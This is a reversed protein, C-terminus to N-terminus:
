RIKRRVRQRSFFTVSGVVWLLWANPEPVSSARKYVLNDVQYAPTLYPDGNQDLPAFSLLTVTRFEFGPDASLGLFFSGGAPDLGDLNGVFSGAGSGDDVRLQYLNGPVAEFAPAYYFDAGFARLLPASALTVADGGVFVDFPAGGLAQGVFSPAIAPQVTPGFTYSFDGLTSGNAIDGLAYAEYDDSAASGGLAILFATRDTFAIIGAEAPTVSAFVACLLAAKAALRALRTM